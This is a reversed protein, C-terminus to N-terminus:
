LAPWAARIERKVRDLAERVDEPCDRHRREVARIALGLEGLMESSSTWASDLVERLREVEASPPLREITERLNTLSDIM